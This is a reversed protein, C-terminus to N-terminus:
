LAARSPLGCGGTAQCAASVHAGVPPSARHRLQLIVDTLNCSVLDTLLRAIHLTAYRVHRAVSRARGCLDAHVRETGGFGPSRRVAAAPNCGAVGRKAPYRLSPQSRRWARVRCGTGARLDGIGDFVRGGGGSEWGTSYPIAQVRVLVAPRASGDVLSFTALWCPSDSVPPLKTVRVAGGLWRPAAWATRWSPTQSLPTSISTPICSESLANGPHNLLLRLLGPPQTSTRKM